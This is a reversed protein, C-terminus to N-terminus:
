NLLWRLQEPTPTRWGRSSSSSSSSRGRMVFSPVGFRRIRVRIRTKCRQVGRRPEQRRSLASDTVSIAGVAFPLGGLGPRTFACAALDPELGIHALILELRGLVAVLLSTRGVKGRPAAEAPPGFLALPPGLSVSTICPDGIYSGVAAGEACGARDMKQGVRRRAPIPASATRPPRM